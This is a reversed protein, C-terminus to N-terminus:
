IQYRSVANRLEASLENLNALAKELQSTGVATQEAAQRIDRMGQTVQDFGIQQQGTAGIIQQFANVSEITTQTMQHITKETVEAQQKGSDTRKVAEEALM